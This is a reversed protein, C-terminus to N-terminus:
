FVKTTNIYLAYSCIMKNIDNPITSFYTLKQLKHNCINCHNRHLELILNLLKKLMSHDNMFIHLIENFLVDSTLITKTNILSDILTKYPDNVFLCSIVLLDQSLYCTSSDNNFIPPEHIYPTKSCLDDTLLKAAQVTWTTENTTMKPFKRNYNFQM